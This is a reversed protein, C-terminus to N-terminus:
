AANRDLGIDRLAERDLGALDRRVCFGQVVNVAREILSRGSIGPTTPDVFHALNNM